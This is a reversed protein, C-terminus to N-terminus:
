AVNEGVRMRGDANLGWGFKQVRELHHKARLDRNGEYVKEFSQAESLSPDKERLAKAMATIEDLATAPKDTLGPIAIGLEAARKELDALKDINGPYPGSFGPAKGGGFQRAWEMAKAAAARGMASSWQPTRALDNIIQIANFSPDAAMKDKAAQILIKAGDEVSLVSGSLTPNGAFSRATVGAKRVAKVAAGFNLM